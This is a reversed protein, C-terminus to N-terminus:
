LTMIQWGEKLKSAIDPHGGSEGLSCVGEKELLAPDSHHTSCFQCAGEIYGLGKVESFLRHLPHQPNALTAIWETGAGDFILRSEVDSGNLQKTLLMAHFARAMNGESAESFLIIAMKAM